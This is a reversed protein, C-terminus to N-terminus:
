LRIMGKTLPFSTSFLISYVSYYIISLFRSISEGKYLEQSRYSIGSIKRKNEMLLFFHGTLIKSMTDKCPHM